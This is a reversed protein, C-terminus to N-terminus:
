SVIGRKVAKITEWNGTHHVRDRLKINLAVGVPVILQRNKYASAVDAMKHLICRNENYKSFLYIDLKIANFVCSQKIFKWNEKTLPSITELALVLINWVLPVSGSRYAVCRCM